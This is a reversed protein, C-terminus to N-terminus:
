AVEESTVLPVSVHAVRSESRAPKVAWRSSGAHKGSSVLELGDVIRGKQQNLYVGVAHAHSERPRGGIESLVEELQSLAERRPEQPVATGFGLRDGSVAELVQGVTMPEAGFAAHWPTVLRRLCDREPDDEYGALLSEAPDGFRVGIDLMQAVWCVTARVLTDWEPYGSAARLPPPGAVLAARVLELGAVRLGLWNAEARARPCFPFM